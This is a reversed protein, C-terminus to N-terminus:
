IHCTQLHRLLDAFTCANTHSGRREWTAASDGGPHNSRVYGEGAPVQDRPASRSTTILAEMSERRPGRRHRSRRDQFATTEKPIREVCQRVIREIRACRQPPHRVISSDGYSGVIVDFDVDAYAIYPQRAPSGVTARRARGLVPLRRCPWGEDTLGGVGALRRALHNPRTMLTDNSKSGAAVHRSHADRTSWRPGDAARWPRSYNHNM